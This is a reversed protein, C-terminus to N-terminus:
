SYRSPKRGGSRVQALAAAKQLQEVVASSARLGGVPPVGPFQITVHNGGGVSGGGAFAPRPVLGGLAFGPIMGANLAAFFGVGLRRVAAATIVFEGRSLWALNSDSTGSGRGGILGGRAAGAGASTSLQGLAVMVDVIADQAQRLSRSHNALLQMTGDTLQTMATGIGGLASELRRIWGDIQGFFQGSVTVVEGGRAYGPIRGANLAGFFGAGFQRVAAARVVYEGRSLWALNSDSTGTGRGGILGGRAIGPVATGEGGTRKGSGAKETLGIWELLKSIASQIASVVTSAWSTWSSAEPPQVQRILEPMGTLANTVLQLSQQGTQGYQQLAQTNTNILEPMGTLPDTALQLGQAAQQGAQEGAQGIGLLSLGYKTAQQTLLEFPNVFGAALTGAFTLFSQNAQNIVATITNLGATIGPALTVTGLNDWATKLRDLAQGLDYAKRENASMSGEAARLGQIFQTGATEGLKSIALNTREAGDPMQRLQQLFQEMQQRAANASLGFAALQGGPDAQAAKQLEQQFKAFGAAAAEGTVGLNQFNQQLSKLGEFSLGLKVAEDSTKTISEAFDITLKTAAAIAAGVAAIAIGPGKFAAGIRGLAALQSGLPGLDIQRLAARVGNIERRTLGFAVTAKNAAGELQAVGAALGELRGAEKVAQTIQNISQAGTIGMRELKQTVVEPNLNRFGGVEQAAQDIQKFAAEGTDGIAALQRQVEAGGELAIQVSLKEAM